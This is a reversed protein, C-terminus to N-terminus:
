TKVQYTSRTSLGDLGDSFARHHHSIINNVTGSDPL